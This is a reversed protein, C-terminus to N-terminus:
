RLDSLVGDIEGFNDNFSLDEGSDEVAELINVNLNSLVSSSANSFNSLLSSLESLENDVGTTGSSSNIVDALGLSVGSEGSDHSETVDRGEVIGEGHGDNDGLSNGGELISEHVLRFVV